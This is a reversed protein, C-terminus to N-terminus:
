SENTVEEINYVDVDATNWCRTPDFADKMWEIASEESTADAELNQTYTVSLTARYRKITKM